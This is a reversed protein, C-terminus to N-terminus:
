LALQGDELLQLRLELGPRFVLELRPNVGPQVEGELGDLVREVLDGAELLL